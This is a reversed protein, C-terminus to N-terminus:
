VTLIFTTSTPLDNSDQCTHLLFLDYTTYITRNFAGSFTETIKGLNIKWFTICGPEFHDYIKIEHVFSANAIPYWRDARISVCLNHTMPVQSDVVASQNTHLRCVIRVNQLYFHVKSGIQEARSLGPVQHSQVYRRLVDNTAIYGTPLGVELITLESNHGLSRVCLTIEMISFNKGHFFLNELSVDYFSGNALPAQQWPYEVNVETHLQLLAMGTGEARAKVQGFVKPIEIFIADQWNQQNLDIVKKWGPASTVEVELRIHYLDRNSDRTAYEALAQIATISDRTSGFGGVSNRMTQLWKMIPLAESVRNMHLYVMLAYSTAEVAGAEHEYLERPMLYPRTDVVRVPNEPIAVNSWYVAFGSRKMAELRQFANTAQNSRAVTLAFTILAMLSSDDLDYIFDELYAAAADKATAIGPRTIGSVCSADSLAILVKATLRETHKAATRDSTNLPETFAGTSSNQQAILWSAITKVLDASIFLEHSWDAQDSLCLVQLVYATLQINPKDTAADRFMTLFGDRYYSLIRQLDLNMTHLTQKLLPDPLQSTAKLYKLYHLKVAYNFVINEASGFPMRMLNSATMHEEFLGPGVVDGVVSLIARESGPVYLHFRQQPKIFREPVVIDFDPIVKSGQNILDLLYPTNYFNTVGLSQCAVNTLIRNSIECYANVKIEIKKRVVDQGMFSTASIVVTVVSSALPLVPFYVTSMHGANVYVMTQFDGRATRPSYSNTVGDQVVIHRYSDSDHLTVLCYIPNQVWGLGTEKSLSIATIVWSMPEKPVGVDIDVRGDAKVYHDKWLWLGDETFHRPSKTFREHVPTFIDESERQCGMEDAGDECQFVGDCRQEVTYCAGDNCPLYGLTANCYHIIRTVNADTFVVLGAYQSFLCGMFMTGLSLLVRAKFTTNADSGYSPSPFYMKRRHYHEDMYSLQYSQNCHSDYTELEEYVQNETLFVDEGYYNFLDQDIVQFAIYSGPETMGSVEISDRSFDKGLNTSTEVMNLTTGNVFFNLADAVVESHHVFYVVVRASPVMDSSLAVPFTKQKANMSLVESLLINGGSVVTPRTTSTSVHIFVDQHSYVRYLYCEVKSSEYFARITILEADISPTFDYQVVGDDRLVKKLEETKSPTHLRREFYTLTVQRQPTWVQSGDAQLVAFQVSQHFGPKFSRSQDGLLVVRPQWPYIVTIAKAVARMQLFWDYIEVTVHIEKEALLPVLQSLEEMTILFGTKGEFFHLARHITPWHYDKGDELVKKADKIEIKITGNGKCPRGNTHNAHIVGAIGYTNDVVSLPMSVNVHMRPLVQFAFIINSDDMLTYECFEEVTFSKNYTVGFSHVRIVWDGYTVQDSLEAKMSLIGANTQMGLWRRVVMGTADSIRIDMSGHAPLLNPQVPIVRFHVTEKQHYVPKNVTIFVSAQKMDFMLQTENEFIVGSMAEHLVGEVRLSYNGPGIDDPIKLQLTRTSPQTFKEVFSAFEEGGKRVSARVSIEPYDLRLISVSVQATMSPRIKAPAIVLYTRVGEGM